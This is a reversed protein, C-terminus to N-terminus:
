AGPPMFGIGARLRDALAAGDDGAERLTALAPAGHRKALRRGDRDVLLPHHRYGPTPLGLLRQLLVHIDTAAVLDQGRIVETVGQAADDVTVALHYSAPADKRAIVVDGQALPDARVIGADADHWHLPGALAAAKAMDIRWCFPLDPTDARTRCTGPYVPASGHPATMAAAVEARTCWCRYVIGLADLTALAGAYRALRESQRVVPGDWRLGLWRLDALITEVHEDRSRGGDIDEIRILFRGGSARARDHALIASYAHGLHLRGTPSPAFRTTVPEGQGPIAPQATMM